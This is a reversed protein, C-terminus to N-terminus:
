YTKEGGSDTELLLVFEEPIISGDAEVTIEQDVYGYIPGLARDRESEETACVILLDEPGPGPRDAAAGTFRLRIEGAPLFEATFYRGQEATERRQYLRYPESAGARGYVTLCTYHPDLRLTVSPGGPLARLATRTDRQVLRTLNVALTRLRPTLDYEHATLRCRLAFGSVPAETFVAAELDAPGLAIAGSVLFGRTQDAAAVSQWGAATYVQWDIDAFPADGAAFPNRGSAPTEAYLLFPRSLDPKGALICLLSAGPRPPAGFVPVAAAAGAPQTLLATVDVRDGGDERYAAALGWPYRIEEREAEFIMGGSSFKRGPTLRVPDPGLPVALVEAPAAARPRFGLLALLKQRMTETVTNIATQQLYNFSTLNQLITVGPDSVNFNTWEGGYLPIQAIAEELLEAYTRDNLDVTELM